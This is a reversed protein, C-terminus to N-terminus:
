GTAYFILWGVALGVAFACAFIGLWALLIEARSM